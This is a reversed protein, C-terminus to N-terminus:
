AEHCWWIAKGLIRVSDALDGRMDIEIPAYDKNFSRLVLRHGPLMDMQKIFIEDDIGVAFVKHALPTKKGQDILVLDDDHIFPEMSNGSVRMLVMQAPNGKQQLWTQHFALRDIVNGENELSGVGASLRAAVLPVHYLPVEAASYPATARAQPRPSFLLNDLSLGAKEAAYVFWSDPIKENRRAFSISQATVNLFLALQRDSRLQLADILDDLRQLPPKLTKMFFSYRAVHLM